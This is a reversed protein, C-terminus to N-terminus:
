PPSPRVLDRDVGYHDAEVLGRKLPDIRQRSQDVVPDKVPPDLSRDLFMYAQRTREGLTAGVHDAGRYLRYEHRIKQNWLVQHLFETGEYLWFMDQDGADLFIWLGSDRIRAADRTAITAPNNAAWHEEDITLRGDVKRGYAALLLQDARWFRHKSQMASWALIPEIGPEMGAVAGFLEPYKFALRLSGMGGMSIGTILTGARDQRVGFRERLHALLEQIIFTEWHESGDRRDLYFGRATVSPTVIVMARLEGAAWMKELTPQQRRLVERDGGGGHLNLVLPLPEGDRQWGPPLLAYYLVPSPVLKSTVEGAVLEAQASRAGSAAALLAVAIGIFTRIGGM